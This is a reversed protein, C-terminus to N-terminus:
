PYLLIVKDLFKKERKAKTRDERGRENRERGNLEREEKSRFLSPNYLHNGLDWEAGTNYSEGM